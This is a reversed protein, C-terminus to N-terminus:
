LLAAGIIGADDAFFATKVKLADPTIVYGKAKKIINEVFGPNHLAVSGGIIFLEPDIICSVNAIAKAMNEAAFEIIEIAKKDGNNYMEFVERACLEKCFAKKAMREIASGSSVENASGPNARKRCYSDTCVILNFIEGANSNAGPFIKGKYIYAGGIGTSMTIYFVSGSKTGAGFTVEALGAANTDRNLVTKIGTEKIFFQAIEFGDWGKLNPPNLIIGKKIDIPGPCVLGIKEINYNQKEKNIYDTLKKSNEKGGFNKDNPLKIKKLINFKEDFIALRLQTGGIDIGIKPM